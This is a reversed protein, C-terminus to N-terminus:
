IGVQFFHSSYSLGHKSAFTNELKLYSLYTENLMTSNPYGGYVYGHVHVEQDLFIVNEGRIRTKVKCYICHLYTRMNIGVQAGCLSKSTPLFFAFDDIGQHPDLFVM